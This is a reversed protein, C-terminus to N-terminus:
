IMFNRIIIADDIDIQLTFQEGPHGNIDLKIWKDKQQAQVELINKGSIDLVACKLGQPLYNDTISHVQLCINRNEASTAKVAVVLALLVDSSQITLNIQQSRIINEVSSDGRAFILQEQKTGLVEELNQWSSDIVNQLWQSLNVLSQQPSTTCDVDRVDQVPIGLIETLQGSKFLADLKKLSAQSGDFILEMCGEEIRKLRLSGDDLLQQLHQVIAELRAVDLQEIDLELKVTRRAEAYTNRSYSASKELDQIKLQQTALNANINALLKTEAMKRIIPNHEIELAFNEQVLEFLVAKVKDAYCKPVYVDQLAEAILKERVLNISAEVPQNEPNLILVVDDISKLPNEIDINRQVLKLEKILQKLKQDLWELESQRERPYILTGRYRKISASGMLEQHCERVITQLASLFCVRLSKELEKSGDNENLKLRKLVDEISPAILVEDVRNTFIGLLFPILILTFIEM